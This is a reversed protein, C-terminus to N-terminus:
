MTEECCTRASVVRIRGSNTIDYGGLNLLDQRFGESGLVELLQKIEPLDLNGADLALEYDEEALPIFELDFSRAASLIGLGADASGGAVAAAVALHTFEEREYGYVESPAIQEQKLFMDLLLRTGAGRQRNVFRLGPRKLDRIGTIGLPNGKAVMLGQSRKA